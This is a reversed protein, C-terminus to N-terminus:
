LTTLRTRDPIRALTAATMIWGRKWGLSKERDFAAEKKRALCGSAYGQTCNRSIEALKEEALGLSKRARELRCNAKELEDMQRYDSRTFRDSM